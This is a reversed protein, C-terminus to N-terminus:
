PNQLSNILSLFAAQEQEILAPPGTFKFFWTADRLPVIAGLLRQDNAPGGIFDVLAVALVHVELRTVAPALEAEGYPTLQLQGRWRNVNALEGGVDGPFATVSLEAGTNDAGAVTYTAKRMATPTQSQWNAPASWSLGVGEAQRVATNAMDAMPKPTAVPPAHAAHDHSSPKITQIFAMFAPKAETVVTAAGVLKFFWTSGEFPVIAGLMKHSHDARGGTLEVLRVTLDGATITTILDAM